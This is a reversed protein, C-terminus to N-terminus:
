KMRVAEVAIDSKYRTAEDWCQFWLEEGSFNHFAVSDAICPSPSVFGNCHWDQLLPLTLDRNLSVNAYESMCKTIFEEEFRETTISRACTNFERFYMDIAGRSIVELAGYLFSQGNHPGIDSSALCNAFLVPPAYSIAGRRVEARLRNPFFVADPDTKVVWETRTYRGDHLITEWVKLYQPANWSDGAVPSLRTEMKQSVIVPQRNDSLVTEHDSLVTWEECGFIGACQKLQERVLPPEYGQARMIILCFLTPGKTFTSTSDWCTLASNGRCTKCGRGAHKCCWKIKGESWGHEWNEFGADCDYPLGTKNPCALGKHECCWNQQAEPWVREWTGMGKGYSMICTYPEDGEAGGDISGPEAAATVGVLSIRTLAAAAAPVDAQGRSVRRAESVMGRTSFAVAGAVVCVLLLLLKRREFIGGLSTWHLTQAQQKSGAVHRYDAATQVM